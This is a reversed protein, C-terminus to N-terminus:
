HHINWCLECPTIFFCRWKEPWESYSTYSLLTQRDQWSCTLMICKANGEKNQM